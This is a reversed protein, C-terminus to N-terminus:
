RQDRPRDAQQVQHALGDGHFGDVFIAEVLLDLVHVAQDDLAHRIQHGLGAADLELEGTYRIVDIAWLGLSAASTAPHGQSESQAAAVGSSPGSPLSGPSGWRAGLVWM